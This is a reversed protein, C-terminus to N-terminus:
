LFYSLNMQNYVQQVSPMFYSLQFLRKSMIKSYELINLLKDNENDNDKNQSKDKENNKEKEKEKEKEKIKIKIKDNKTIFYQLLQQDNESKKM